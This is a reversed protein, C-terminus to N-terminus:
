FTSANYRKDCDNAEEVTQADYICRYYEREIRDTMVLLFFGSMVIAAASALLSIVNMVSRTGRLLSRTAMWIGAVAAAVSFTAVALAAALPFLGLFVAFATVLSLLAAALAIGPVNSPKTPPWPPTSPPGSYWSPAPQGYAQNQPSRGVPPEPSWSPPPSQGEGPRDSPPVFPPNSVTV